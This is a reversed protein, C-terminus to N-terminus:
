CTLNASLDEQEMVSLEACNTLVYIGLREVRMLAKADEWAYAFRREGESALLREQILTHYPRCRVSHAIAPLDSSFRTAHLGRGPGQGM